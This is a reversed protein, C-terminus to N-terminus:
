DLQILRVVRGGCTGCKGILALEKDRIEGQVLEFHRKHLCRTCFGDDLLKTRTADPVRDWVAQAEPTFTM